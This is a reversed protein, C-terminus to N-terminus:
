SCPPVHFTCNLTGGVEAVHALQSPNLPTMVVIYLLMIRNRAAAGSPGGHLM